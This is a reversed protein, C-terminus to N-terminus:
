LRRCEAAVREALTGPALPDADALDVRYPPRSAEFRSRLEARQSLSLRAPRTFLLDPDSYPRARGKSRSGFAGLESGAAVAKSVRDGKRLKFNLVQGWQKLSFVQGWPGGTQPSTVLNAVGYCRTTM